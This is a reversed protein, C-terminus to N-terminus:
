ARTSPATPEDDDRLKANPPIDLEVNEIAPSTRLAEANELIDIAEPISTPPKDASVAVLLRGDVRIEVRHQRVPGEDDFADDDLVDLSSRSM